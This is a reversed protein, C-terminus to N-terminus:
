RRSGARARLRTLSSALTPNRLLMLQGNRALRRALSDPLGVALTHPLVSVSDAGGLGAAFAAITGRLVNVYPDRRTMIRWASEAQVCAPRPALGCAEEVRAWVIRLARFKALRSSSKSAPPM